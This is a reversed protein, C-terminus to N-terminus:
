GPIEVARGSQDLSRQAYELVRIIPLASEGSSILPEGSTIVDRFHELEVRLPEKWTIRPILIDGLRYELLDSEKLGHQEVSAAYVRIREDSNMDDYLITQSSGSLVLRRVKMPSLWSVNIHAFFSGQFEITLFVAADNKAKPHRGATASISRPKLEVLHMLISLDHVALDWLVSVDPQFIGLNTRVSDFYVLDGIPADELLQKMKRVAPSFLFTHDVMLQRNVETALRVLMEASGLDTTLPKEVLVHCSERLCRAALEFHTDAPTAILAV